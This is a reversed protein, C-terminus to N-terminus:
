LCDRSLNIKALADYFLINAFSEDDILVHHVDYQVITLSVVVTDDHFTQIGERDFDFFVSM